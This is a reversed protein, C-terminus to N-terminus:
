LSLDGGNSLLVPVFGAQNAAKIDAVIARTFKFPCFQVRRQAPDPELYSTDVPGVSLTHTPCSYCTHLVASGGEFGSVDTYHRLVSKGVIPLGKQIKDTQARWAKSAIGSSRTVLIISPLTGDEARKNLPFRFTTIRKSIRKWRM